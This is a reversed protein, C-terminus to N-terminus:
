GPIIPRASSPSTWLSRWERHERTAAVLHDFDAYTGLEPHISKHAAM